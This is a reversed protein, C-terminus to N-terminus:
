VKSNEEVILGPVDQKGILEDENMVADEEVVNVRARYPNCSRSILLLLRIVIQVVIIFSVAIAAYKVGGITDEDFTTTIKEIPETLEVYIWGFAWSLVCAMTWNPRPINFLVWVSVAHLVALSVIAVALQMSASVEMDVVLVNVNLASAATIWGAHVAFPFRFIWFELLKGDSKTYYQSYLIAILAVWILLMFVLSAIIIEYAFTFTWGIQVAAVVVYWYSVGRQVMAHDRLRPLLQLIAFVGQALFIVAWITFASSNPTVLTQYKDSLEGNTPTGIWGANGIGYVLVINAIYAFLNLFNKPNLRPPGDKNNNAAATTTTEDIVEDESNTTTAVAEEIPAAAASAELSSM